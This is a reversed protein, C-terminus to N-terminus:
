RNASVGASARLRSINPAVGTAPSGFSASAASNAAHVSVALAMMPRSSVMTRSQIKRMSVVTTFAGYVSMENGRNESNAGFKGNQSFTVNEMLSISSEADLINVNDLALFSKVQNMGGPIQSYDKLVPDKQGKQDNGM